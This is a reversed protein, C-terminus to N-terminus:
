QTHLHTNARQLTDARSTSTYQQSGAACQLRAHSSETLDANESLQIVRLLPPHPSFSLTLPDLFDGRQSM